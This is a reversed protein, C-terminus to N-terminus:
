LDCLDAVMAHYSPALRGATDLEPDVGSHPTQSRGVDPSSSLHRRFFPLDGDNKRKEGIM